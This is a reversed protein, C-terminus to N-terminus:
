LLNSLIGKLAFPVCGVCPLLNVEDTLNGGLKEIAFNCCRSWFGNKADLIDYTQCLTSYQINIIRAFFMSARIKPNLKM